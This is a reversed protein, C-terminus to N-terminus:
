SKSHPSVGVIAGLVAGAGVLVSSALLGGPVAITALAVMCALIFGFAGGLMMWLKQPPTIWKWRASLFASLVVFSAGVVFSGLLLGGPAINMGAAGGAAAGGIALLVSLLFVKILNM